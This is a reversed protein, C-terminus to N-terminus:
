PQTTSISSKVAMIRRVDRLEYFVFDDTVFFSRFKVPLKQLFTELIEVLINDVSLCSASYRLHDILRGSELPRRTDLLRGASIPM